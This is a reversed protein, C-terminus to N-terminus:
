ADRACSPTARREAARRQAPDLAFIAARYSEGKDCFQGTADVPDVNRWYVDLLQAYTVRRPDFRVRV